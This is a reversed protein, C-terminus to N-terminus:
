DPPLPPPPIAPRPSPTSEAQIEAPGRPDLNTSGAPAPQIQQLLAANAKAITAQQRLAKTLASQLSQWVAIQFLGALFAIAALCSSLGWLFELAGRSAVGFTATSRAMSPLLLLFLSIAIWTALSRARAVAADDPIRRAITGLYRFYAWVGVVGFLHLLSLTVVFLVMMWTPLQGPFSWWMLLLSVIEALFALRVILRTRTQLGDAPVGPERATILWSGFCCTVAAALFGIAVGCGLATAVVFSMNAGTSPGGLGIMVFVVLAVTAALTVLFLRIGVLMVYSGRAIRAIWEPNSFALWDGRASKMVPSGCEPCRGDRHLGRMNYGCDRCRVDTALVGTEDVVPEGAYPSLCSSVSLSCGPCKGSCLVGRLNQRCRWCAIDEKIVETSRAPYAILLSELALLGCGPCSGSPPLNVLSAGCRRCHTGTRLSGAANLLEAPIPYVSRAVGEGCQPCHNEPSLGGLPGLCVRCRIFDRVTGDRNLVAKLVSDSDSM